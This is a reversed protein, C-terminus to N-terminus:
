KFAYTHENNESAKIIAGLIEQIDERYELLKPIFMKIKEELDQKTRSDEIMNSDEYSDALYADVIRSGTEYVSNNFAIYMESLVNVKWFFEYLFQIHNCKKEKMLEPLGKTLLEKYYTRVCEHYLTDILLYHTTPVLIENWIKNEVDLSHSVFDLFETINLEEEFRRRCLNAYYKSTESKLRPEFSKNISMLISLFCLLITLM